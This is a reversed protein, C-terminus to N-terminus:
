FINLDGHVLWFPEVNVKIGSINELTNLIFPNPYIYPNEKKFEDFNLNLFSNLFLAVAGSRCIGAHCHIIITEINDELSKAFDIILKADEKSFLKCNYNEVVIDDFVLKLINKCDINNLIIEQDKTINIYSDFSDISILVWNGNIYDSKIKSEIIYEIEQIPICKIKM